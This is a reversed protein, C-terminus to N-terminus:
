AIFAVKRRAKLFIVSSLFLTYTIYLSSLAVKVAVYAVIGNNGVSSATTGELFLKDLFGFLLDYAISIVAHPTALNFFLGIGTQTPDHLYRIMLARGLSSFSSRNEGVFLVPSVGALVLVTFNLLYFPQTFLYLLLILLSLLMASFLNKFISSFQVDKGLALRILAIGTLVVIPWLVLLSWLGSTILNQVAASLLSLASNDNKSIIGTINIAEAQLSLARQTVTGRIALLPFFIGFFSLYSATKRHAWLHSWSAQAIALSNWELTKLKTADM